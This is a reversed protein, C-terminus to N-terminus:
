GNVIKVVSGKLKGLEGVLYEAQEGLAKRRTSARDEPAAFFSGAASAAMRSGAVLSARAISFRREFAGTKLRTLRDDSM